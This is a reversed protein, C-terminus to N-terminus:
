VSNGSSDSYKSKLIEFNSFIATRGSNQFIALEALIRYRSFSPDYLRPGYSMKVLIHSKWKTNWIINTDLGLPFPQIKCFPRFWGFDVLILWFATDQVSWRVSLNRNLINFLFRMNQNIHAIFRTQVIIRERSVANQSINASKPQNLGKQLIWGSGKPKSM